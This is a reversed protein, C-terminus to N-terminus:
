WNRAKVDRTVGRCGKTQLHPISILLKPLRALLLRRRHAAKDHKASVGPSVRRGTLTTHMRLKGSLLCQRLLEDYVQVEFVYLEDLFCSWIKEALNSCCRTMHHEPSKIQIFTGHRSTFCTTQWQYLKAQRISNCCRHVCHDPQHHRQLTAPFLNKTLHPPLNFQLLHAM